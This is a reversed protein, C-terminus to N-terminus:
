DSKRGKASPAKTPELEPLGYKRLLLNWAEHGLQQLKTEQSVSLMLLRKHDAPAVYINIAKPPAKRPPAAAAKASPITAPDAFESPRLHRHEETEADLASEGALDALSLGPRKSKSM